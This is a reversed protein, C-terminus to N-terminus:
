AARRSHVAVYWMAHTESDARRFGETALRAEVGRLDHVFVRFGSRSLFREGANVFGLGTRAVLRRWGWSVPAVFAYTRRAAGISNSLLSDLRPYCCLVKDLVVVDHPQLPVAAGDGVSFSTRGTVGASEALRNAQAISAPSLDIGTARAAGRAVTERTLAGLGCGLELVTAEALGARELMALLSKSVGRVKAPRGRRSRVRACRDFCASIDDTESV